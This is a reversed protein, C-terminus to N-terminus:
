YIFRANIDHIQPIEIKTSINPIKPSYDLSAPATPPPFGFGLGARPRRRTSLRAGDGSPVEKSPGLVGKGDQFSSPFRQFTELIKDFHGPVRWSGAPFKGSGDLFRGSNRWFKPTAFVCHKQM